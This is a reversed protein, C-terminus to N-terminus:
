EGVVALSLAEEPTPAVWVAGDWVFGPPSEGSGFAAMAAEGRLWSAVPDTDLHAPARM